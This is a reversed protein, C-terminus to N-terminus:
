SKIPMIYTMSYKVTATTINELIPPPMIIQLGFTEVPIPYPASFSIIYEGNADNIEVTSPEIGYPRIAGIHKLNSVQIEVVATSFPNTATMFGLIVANICDLTGSLRVDFSMLWGNVPFNNILTTTSPLSITMGTENYQAGFQYGNQLLSLDFTM